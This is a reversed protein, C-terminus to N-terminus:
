PPEYEKIFLDSYNEGLAKRLFIRPIAFNSGRVHISRHNDAIYSEFTESLFTEGLFPRKSM